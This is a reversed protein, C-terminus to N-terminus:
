QSLGAKQMGELYHDLQDRNHRFSVLRRLLDVAFDPKVRMLDALAVKAEATRGLHGLACALHAYPWFQKTLRIARRADDVASVYDGLMVSAAARITYFAWRHPDFPSLR